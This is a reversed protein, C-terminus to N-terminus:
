AFLCRRPSRRATALMPAMAKPAPAMLVRMAAGWGSGKPSFVPPSVVTNAVPRLANENGAALRGSSSRVRKTM